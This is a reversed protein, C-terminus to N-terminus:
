KGIGDIELGFYTNNNNNKYSSKAQLSGEWGGGGWIRLNLPNVKGCM